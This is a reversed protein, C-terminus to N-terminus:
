NSIDTFIKFTKMEILFSITYLTSYNLYSKYRNDLLQGFMPIVLATLVIIQLTKNMLETSDQCFLKRFIEWFFNDGFSTWGFLKM